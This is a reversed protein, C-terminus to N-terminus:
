IGVTIGFIFSRAQPYNWWQVGNADIGSPDFGIYNDATFTYLNEAEMFVRVNNLFTGRLWNRPLTYGVTLSRIKLYDGDMLFRSSAQNAYSGDTDLRPVNTIDGPKQWRNEYVYNIFNEYFASGGNADYRLNDGYIKAGTSYNFQLALDFGYAELRTSFSGFFKPNADGLYRKEAKNYDTTTVNNGNEDTTYWMALGTEPDVGAYEKMKWQYIPYGVETTSITGEIPYDTSLKKVKNKNISGNWAFTWTIDKNKFLVANLSAEFGKNELKGVNQYISSMGTAFSLPVSFVMDTTQHNYYDLSIDIRKFLNIDLGVNFKKTMEWKLNENGFQELQMGPKSNYNWGYGYLNSAAYYGSGVEQNGTTGYSARITLNSLWSSTSEMFSEATLRYKGGVSWFTAWRNGDAFRSSGDARLSASLYYKHNYDYQGNFFYSNLLLQMQTTAASSPTAALSVDNLDEVPYNSGALYAQKYMKKQGEQGVLLNLNHVDNFTKLYNLTNTINLMIRTTNANEGMANMDAGQPQLFSWYGFEDIFYADIGARTMFFLEPTFNIQVYPSLLVRYQKALSKDGYESRLAVPNYGTTTDFNFQGEEDYVNTMPNMMYVQTLPDSFYGGGAGMNTETYSLNTNFGYKVWRSPQHDMNFRFSYRTLDKGKM